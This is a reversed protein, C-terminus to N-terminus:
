QLRKQKVPYIYFYMGSTFFFKISKDTNKVRLDFRIFLTPLCLLMSFIDEGRFLRFLFFMLSCAAIIQQM